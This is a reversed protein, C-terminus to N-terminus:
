LNRKKSRILGAVGAFSLLLLTSPEPVAAISSSTGPGYNAQWDAIGAPNTRQLLLFDAGDVDGDGDADGAVGAFDDFDGTIANVQVGTFGTGNADPSLTQFFAYAGDGTLADYLVQDVGTVTGLGTSTLDSLNTLAVDYTTSAADAGLTLTYEFVLEDGADLQTDDLTGGVASSGLVTSFNSLLRYRDATATPQLLDDLSDLIQINADAAVADGTGHSENTNDEKLGAMFLYTFNEPSAFPGGTLELDISFNFTEGPTTLQIPAQYTAIEGNTMTAANGTGASDAVTWGEETSWGQQGNLAGDSFDPSTFDFRKQVPAAPPDPLFGISNVQLGNLGSGNAGPNLTQFFTFAGPGTLATYLAPDVGSVTGVGTDTGDTLNQLRVTYNTTAADTGLTIEYDYQLVDGANLETADISGGLSTAGPIGSFNSLLRYQDANASAMGLGEDFGDLLQINADASIADGTPLGASATSDPTLGSSFAYTFGTPTAYPGGGFQFNMSYGFTDSPNTLTIPQSYTAIEANTSTIASGGGTSN